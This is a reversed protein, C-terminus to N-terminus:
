KIKKSHAHLLPYLFVWKKLLNKFVKTALPTFGECARFLILYQLRQTASYFSLNVYLQQITFM